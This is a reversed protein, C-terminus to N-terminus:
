PRPPPRFRAARVGSWRSRAACRAFIPLTSGVLRGEAMDRALVAPSALWVCDTELVLERLVHYNDCIMTGVGPEVGGVVPGRSRRGRIETMEDLPDMRLGAPDHNMGTGLLSVRAPRQLAKDLQRVPQRPLKVHEPDIRGFGAAGDQRLSNGPTLGLRQRVQDHTDRAGLQEDAVIGPRHM